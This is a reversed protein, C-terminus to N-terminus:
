PCTLFGEIWPSDDCRRMAQLLETMFHNVGVAPQYPSVLDPASRYVHEVPGIEDQVILWTDVSGPLRLPETRPYAGVFAATVQRLTQHGAPSLVAWGVIRAEGTSDWLLLEVRDCSDQSFVPNPSFQLEARCPPPNSGSPRDCDGQAWQVILPTRSQDLCRTKPTSCTATCDGWSEFLNTEDGCGGWITLECRGSSPVYTYRPIAAECPSPAPPTLCGDPPQGGDLEGGGDAPGGGADWVQQSGADSAQLARPGPGDECAGVLLGLLLVCFLPLGRLAAQLGFRVPQTLPLERASDLPLFTPATGTSPRLSAALIRFRVWFPPRIGSPGEWGGATKPGPGKAM